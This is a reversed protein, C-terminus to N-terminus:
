VENSFASITEWSMGIAAADNLLSPAVDLNSSGVAVGPSRSSAYLIEGRKVSGEVRVPVIGFM